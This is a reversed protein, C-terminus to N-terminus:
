HNPYTRKDIENLKTRIKELSEKHEQEMTEILREIEAIQSNIGDKSANQKKTSPDPKLNSSSQANKITNQRSEERGRRFWDGLYSTFASFIGVGVTMVFIAVIRGSNTVPYRDGYGVTAITVLNWWLADSATIINADPAISELSLILIGSIELILIAVLVVGLLTSQARRRLTKEQLVRIDARRLRRGILVYRLLRVLRIGPFPLSGVFDMWGYWDILYNRVPRRFSIRFLFDIMFVLCIGNDIIEIVEKAPSVLFLSLIINGVSLLTLLFLFIEYNPRLVLPNNDELSKM